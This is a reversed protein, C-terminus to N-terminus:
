LIVGALQDFPTLQNAQVGDMIIQHIAVRQDRTKTNIHKCIEVSTLWGLYVKFDWVVLLNVDGNRFSRFEGTGYAEGNGAQEDWGDETLFKVLRDVFDIHIKVMVDMDKGAGQIACSGVLEVLIAIDKLEDRLVMAVGLMQAHAQDYTIM